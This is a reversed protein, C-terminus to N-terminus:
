AHWVVEGGIMTLRVRTAHVEDPPARLPDPEVVILDAPGGPRLRGLDPAGLADAAGRTFLALAAVGGLRERPGLVAGSATRRSRAAALGVWPSPPGIPADSGAALAVGAAALSRARYLWGWADRPTETRYVDGRTHVFAPNTVVTLGLAAIRSVLPPPCEAVHELRHPARARRPSPLSTFADLAAVLTAAGVCHVAVAGGASALAIRRRLATPTPRLGGPGEEVMVKVPGPRLRTARPWVATGAPRMAFVRLRIRGGDVGERLPALARWSRPTADAVATVGLAALEAAATTLGDHLVGAPLPGVARGVAPEEGYVLGTARGARREVGPRPGLLALGRGSLASAHRSRHRLRVPAHPSAADLEAASPLRGLTVEDLAEGRVWTGRPTARARERVAALLEDVGRFRGCDLHAHRTALALLHLHPDVLGPLVTAGGCDIRRASGGAARRVDARSGVALVRGDRVAVAVAAARPAVPDLTLV